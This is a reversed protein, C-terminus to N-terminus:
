FVAVLKPILTGCVSSARASSTIRYPGRVDAQGDNPDFQHNKQRLAASRLGIDAGSGFGDNGGSCPAAHIKNAAWSKDCQGTGQLRKCIDSHRKCLNM